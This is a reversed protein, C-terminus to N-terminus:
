LLCPVTRTVLKEVMKKVPSGELTLVALEPNPQRTSTRFPRQPDQGLVTMENVSQPRAPLQTSLKLQEFPHPNVSAGKVVKVQNTVFDDM